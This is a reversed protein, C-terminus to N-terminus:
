TIPMCIPLTIYMGMMSASCYRFMKLRVSYSRTFERYFFSQCGEQFITANVHKFASAQGDRVKPTKVAPDRLMRSDPNRLTRMLSPVTGGSM